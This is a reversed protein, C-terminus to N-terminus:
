VFTNEPANVTKNLTKPDAIQMKLPSSLACIVFSLDQVM